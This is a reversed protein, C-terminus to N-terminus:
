SKESGEDVAALDRFSSGSEVAYWLFASMASTAPNSLLISTTRCKNSLSSRSNTLDYASGSSGYVLKESRKSCCLFRTIGIRVASQDLVINARARMFSFDAQDHAMTYNLCLMALFMNMLSVGVVFSTFVMMIRVVWFNDTPPSDSQTVIGTTLNVTLQSSLRNELEEVSADGLVVMRYILMFCDDISYGNNLAFLMNVTGLVYISLVVLFPVINWMTQSMPLIETGIARIQRLYALFRLWKMYVLVGLATSFMSDQSANNITLLAINVGGTMFVVLADFWHLARAFYQRTLGKSVYGAFQALELCMAVLWMFLSVGNAVVLPVSDILVNENTIFNIVMFAMIEIAAAVMRFRALRQERAWQWNVIACCGDTSFININPCDAIALLVQLDKHVLPITCMYPTIPVFMSPRGPLHAHPLFQHVRRTNAPDLTMKQDFMKLFYSRHPSEMLNCKYEVDIFAANPRRRYLKGAHMEWYQFHCPQFIAGFAHVPAEGPARIFKLLDDKTLFDLSTPTNNMGRAVMEILVANQSAFINEICSNPERAASPTLLGSQPRIGFLDAKNMILRQAIGAHGCHVADDLPQRGQGDNVHVEAGADLLLSVIREHGRMAAVHLPTHSMDSHDQNVGYCEVSVNHDLLTLLIDVHGFYSAQWILNGDNSSVASLNAHREVLLTLMDLDGSPICAYAATGTWVNQEAGALFSYESEVSANYELLMNVMSANQHLVAAALPTASVFEKGMLDVSMWVVDPDAGKQLQERVDEVSDDQIASLLADYPHSNDKSDSREAIDGELRFLKPSPQMNKTLHPVEEQHQTHSSREHMCSGTHEFCSEIGHFLAVLGKIQRGM